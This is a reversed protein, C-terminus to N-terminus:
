AAAAYPPEGASERYIDEVQRRADQSRQNAEDTIDPDTGLAVINEDLGTTPGTSAVVEGGLVNMRVPQRPQDYVPAVPAAEPVGVLSPDIAHVVTTIWDAAEPVLTNRGVIAERVHQDNRPRLREPNNNSSM